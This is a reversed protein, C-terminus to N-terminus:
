KHTDRWKKKYALLDEHTRCPIVKNICENNEIYFRERIELERKTECEVNEILLYSYNGRNIINFSTIFHYKGNNYSKCKSKHLIMRRNLTNITSGFYIENTINCIIKYIIGKM